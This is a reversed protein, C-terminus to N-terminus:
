HHGRDQNSPAFWLKCTLAIGLVIGICDLGVDSWKGTRHFFDYTLYQLYETLL